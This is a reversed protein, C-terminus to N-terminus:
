VPANHVEIPWRSSCALDDTLTRPSIRFLSIVQTLGRLRRRPVLGLPESGLQGILLLLSEEELGAFVNARHGRRRDGWAWFWLRRLAWAWRADSGLAVGSGFLPLRAGGCGLSVGRRAEGRRFGLFGWAGRRVSPFGEPLELAPRASGFFARRRHSEKPFVSEELAWPLLAM